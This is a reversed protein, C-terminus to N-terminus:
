PGCGALHERGFRNENLPAEQLKTSKIADILDSQRRFCTDTPTHTDDYAYMDVAGCMYRCVYYKADRIVDAANAHSFDILIGTTTESEIRDPSGRNSGPESQLGEGPQSLLRTIISSM